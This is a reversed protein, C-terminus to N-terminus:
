QKSGERGGDTPRERERTETYGRKREDRHVGRERRQTGREIKIWNASSTVKPHTLTGLSLPVGSLAYTPYLESVICVFVSVSVSLCVCVGQFVCRGRTDKNPPASCGPNHTYTKLDLWHAEARRGM